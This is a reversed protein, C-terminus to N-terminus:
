KWRIDFSMVTRSGFDVECETRGGPLTQFDYEKGDATIAAPCCPFSYFALNHSGTGHIIATLTKGDKAQTINEVHIGGDGSIFATEHKLYVAAMRGERVSLPFSKNGFHIRCSKVNNQKTWDTNLAFIQTFDDEGKWVSWAVEQSHDEVYVDGRSKEALSNLIDRMIGELSTNGPYAWTTLLYAKGKGVSNGTLVPCDNTKDVILPKATKLKVDAIPTNIRYEKWYPFGKERGAEKWNCAIWEREKKERKGTVKLGFLDEFNGGKIMDLDQMDLLFKRDEHMSLHPLAMFLIGGNKVYSKLKEYIEPTMTNWGLFILVKYSDLIDQSAKAVPAMDFIGYPTGTFWHRINEGDKHYPMFVDLLEMGKEPDGYDWKEELGGKAGWVHSITKKANMFKMPLSLIESSLNGQAIALNVESKGRRPHTNVFRYFNRMIQRLRTTEESDWGQQHGSYTIRFHGEESIAMNGGWLYALYWNVYSLTLKTFDEPTKAWYVANYVGWRKKGFAKAAGSAGAFLHMANLAMTEVAIYDIGSEYDYCALATAQGTQRPIGEVTEIAAIDKIYQEM